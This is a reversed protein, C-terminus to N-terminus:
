AIMSRVARGADTGTASGPGVREASEELPMPQPSPAALVLEDRACDETERVRLKNAEEGNQVSAVAVDIRGLAQPLDSVGGDAIAQCPVDLLQEQAEPDDRRDARQLALDVLAGSLDRLLHPDGTLFADTREASSDAGESLVCPCAGRQSPQVLDVVPRVDVRNGGLYPVRDLVRHTTTREARQADRSATRGLVVPM